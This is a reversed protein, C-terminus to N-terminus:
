TARQLELCEERSKGRSNSTCEHEQDVNLEGSETRISLHRTLRNKRLASISYPIKCALDETAYVFNAMARASVILWEFQKTFRLSSNLINSLLQAAYTLRLPSDIYPVIWVSSGEM